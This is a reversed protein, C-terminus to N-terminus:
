FLLDISIYKLTIYSKIELILFKPNLKILDVQVGNPELDLLEEVSTKLYNIM